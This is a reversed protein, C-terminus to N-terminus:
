SHFSKLIEMSQDKKDWPVFLHDHYYASVPNVSIEAEALKTTIAALFGVANLDSHVTLTIMAWKPESNEIASDEIVLTEGEQEHFVMVAKEKQEITFSTKTTLFVYPVHKLDPSMNKLLTQLNSEGSMTEYNKKTPTSPISGLRCSGSDHTSGAYAVGHSGIRIIIKILLQKWAHCSALTIFKRKPRVSEGQVLGYLVPTLSVLRLPM